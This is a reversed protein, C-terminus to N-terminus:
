PQHAQMTFRFRSGAYVVSEVLELTAGAERALRSSVALGLGTGHRRTSMGEEFICDWHACHIGPGNDVVELVLGIKGAKARTRLLRIEVTGNGGCYENIQQVANTLLNRLVCEFVLRRGRVEKDADEGYDGKIELRRKQELQKYQNLYHEVVAQPSFQEFTISAGPLMDELTNQARVVDGQVKRAGDLELGDNEAADQLVGASHLLLSSVEHAMYRFDAAREGLAAVRKFQALLAEATLTGELARKAARIQSATPIEGFADRKRSVLFLAYAFAGSPQPELRVGRVSLPRDGAAAAALFWRYTGEQRQADPTNRESGHIALDRVPSKHLHRVHARFGETLTKEGVSEVVSVAMSRKHIRFVIVCCDDMGAVLLELVAPCTGRIAMEAITSMKTSGLSTTATPSGVAVSNARSLPGIADQGSAIAHLHDVGRGRDWVGLIRWVNSQEGDLEFLLRSAHEASVCALVM